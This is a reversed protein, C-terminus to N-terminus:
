ADMPMSVLSDYTTQLCESEETELDKLLYYTGDYFGHKQRYYQRVGVGSIVAMRTRGLERTLREAEQMLQSGYGKHQTYDKDTSHGVNTGYVHLERILTADKLEAIQRVGESPVRLRLFGLVRNDVEMSLFIEKGGSATYDHRKLEVQAKDYTDNKIERCRICKCAQGTEKLRRNMVDRMHTMRLGGDVSKLPFDRVIRNVRIYCPINPIVRLLLDLLKEPHEEAYPKYTGSQYWDYFASYKFVQTPYIKWQDARYDPNDIFRMLMQEDEEPTSGPLDPMLHIDIKFCNDKLLRLCKIVRRTTCQRNVRKLIEEDDTQVGLQVRTVGLRRLDRVSNLTCLQDPRTEITYGIIRTTATENLHMEEELTGMPRPRTNKENYKDSEPVLQWTNAAYYMDRIFDERFQKDYSHFTGGLQLLEVKDVTHGNRMLTYARNVFQAVSDRDCDEMRRNVMETSLYSRAEGPENPCYACDYACSFSRGDPMVSIVCVGSHSRSSLHNLFKRIPCNDTLKALLDTKRDYVGYLKRCKNLYENADAYSEPEFSELAEYFARSIVARKDAKSGKGQRMYADREAKTAFM